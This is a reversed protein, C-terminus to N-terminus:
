TSIFFDWELSYFLVYFYVGLLLIQIDMRGRQSWFLFRSFLCAAFLSNRTEGLDKRAEESDKILKSKAAQIQREEEKSEEMLTFEHQDISTQLRALDTSM